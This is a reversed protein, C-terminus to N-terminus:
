MINTTQMAMALFLMILNEKDDVLKNDKQDVWLYIKSKSLLAFGHLFRVGLGVMM